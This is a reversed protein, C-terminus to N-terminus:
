RHALDQGRIARADLCRCRDLGVAEGRALEVNHAGVPFLVDVGRRPEPLQPCTQHCHMVAVTPGDEERSMRPGPPSEVLETVPTAVIPHPQLDSSRRTPFSLLSRSARLCQF